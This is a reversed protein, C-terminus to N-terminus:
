LDLVRNMRAAIDALRERGGGRVEATCWGTFGTEALAARVAAWDVDGDGIKCFGNSKGWDKVDLKVIRPGLVEVWNESPSFKRVNGIDFYVGVWPSDIEDIYDRLQEPTECFGNWVNEILVRVGLKSATPLVLRIQEISRQWVDDHTEGEGTVKGPVLLISDGGYAKTDALGTLLDQRGEERVAADPSSLRVGWHKQGVTGHVPMGTAASAALVEDLNHRSPATLEMGDYGLEKCLEFKELVSGGDGIMGWKVSKFIRGRNAAAEATDQALSLSPAAVNAAIVGATSLIFQRREIGGQHYEM